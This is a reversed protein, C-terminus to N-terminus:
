LARLWELYSQWERRDFSTSQTFDIDEPLRALVVKAQEITGRAELPRQLRRYCDAIRVYADLVEPSQQNQNIATSYAGIAEDYRGMDFLAAAKM